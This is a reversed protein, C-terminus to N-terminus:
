TNNYKNVIVNLKDIYVNKSILTLCSYINNKLTRIFLKANVSNKENHISYMVRDNYQLSSRGM